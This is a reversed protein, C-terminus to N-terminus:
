FGGSCSRFGARRGVPSWLPCLPRLSFGECGLFSSGGSLAVLSFALSCHPGLVAWLYIMKLLLIFVRFRALGSWMAEGAWSAWGREGWRGVEGWQCVFWECTEGFAVGVPTYGM